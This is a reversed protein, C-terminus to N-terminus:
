LVFEKENRYVMCGHLAVICRCTSDIFRKNDDLQLTHTRRSDKVNEDYAHMVYTMYHTNIQFWNNSM